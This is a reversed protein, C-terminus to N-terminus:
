IFSADVELGESSRALWYPILQQKKSLTKPESKIRRRDFPSSYFGTSIKAIKNM